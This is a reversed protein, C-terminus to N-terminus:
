SSFISIALLESSCSNDEDQKSTRESFDSLQGCILVSNLDTVLDRTLSVVDSIHLGNSIEYNTNLVSQFEITVPDNVFHSIVDLHVSLDCKVRFQSFLRLLVMGNIKNGTVVSWDVRVIPVPGSWYWDTSDCDLSCDESKVVLPYIFCDAVQSFKVCFLSIGVTSM